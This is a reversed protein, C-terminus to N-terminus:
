SIKKSSDLGGASFTSSSTELSFPTLMVNKDDFPLTYGRTFRSHCKRKRELAKARIGRAPKIEPDALIRIKGVRALMTLYSEM